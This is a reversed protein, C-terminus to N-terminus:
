HGDVTAIDGLFEISAHLSQFVLTITPHVNPLFSYTAFLACFFLDISVEISSVKVQLIRDITTRFRRLPTGIIKRPISM